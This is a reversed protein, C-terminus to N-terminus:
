ARRRRRRRDAHHPRRGRAGQRDARCPAAPRPHLGRPRRRRGEQGQRPRRPEREPTKDLDVIGDPLGGGVAIKDMYVDPANLFGGHEAMAMVALANPLARPPSPPARSRISRSTSRPAAARRGERRYLADAGRRARGRRDGRHRRHGAHQAGHAHRRGRGPRGGERRRPGDAQSAALAAAETVRVAELALNRDMKGHEATDAM